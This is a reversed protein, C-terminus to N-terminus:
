QSPERVTPLVNAYVDILNVFLLSSNTALPLWVFYMGM